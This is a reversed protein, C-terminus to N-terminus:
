GGSRIMKKGKGKPTVVPLVADNVVSEVSFACEQGVATLDDPDLQVTDQDFLLIEGLPDGKLLRGM